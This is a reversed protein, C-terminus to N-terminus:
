INKPKVFCQHNNPQIEMFIFSSCSGWRYFSCPKQKQAPLKDEYSSLRYECYSAFRPYACAAWAQSEIQLVKCSLKGRIIKQIKLFDKKLWSWEKERSSSCVFLTCNEFHYVIKYVSQCFTPRTLGTGNKETNSDEKAKNELQFKLYQTLIAFLKM